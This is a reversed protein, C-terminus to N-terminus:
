EPMTPLTVETPGVPLKLSPEMGSCHVVRASIFREMYLFLRRSPFGIIDAPYATIGVKFHFGDIEGVNVMESVTRKLQLM